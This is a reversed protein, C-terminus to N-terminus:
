TRSYYRKMRSVHVTDSYPPKRGGRAIRLQYNVESLKAEVEYPGYWRHLLKTTRGKKRIPTWVMVLDGKEYEVYRHSQDYRRKQRTQAGRIIKRVDERCRQVRELLRGAEPDVTANQCLSVDIPLRAERGYMLFFPTHRTTEQISTNYSFCTLHVYLDWDRQNTSVYNSLMQALTGNFHETLGNCMPHYATTYSTRIGLGKLLESVLTSTFNRGRDSLIRRPCGFKSIIRNILFRATTGATATRTAEAEAWKTAYDVAVIIYINGKATRTFPGLFDIGITDFPEGVPIPQLLGAGARKPTKRSQCDVCSKVYKEVEKLMKPWYYRSKIKFFTKTFGLHGGSLPSDHCETMVEHRIGTPVVLLKEHGLHAVNKKYLIGNEIVFSRALRREASTAEDPKKVAEIISRCQPDGEQLKGIDEMELALIPIENIDLEDQLGGQDTYNRSLCDPVVHLKGQKHRITYDFEMLKLAWRGLRGSIDKNRELWCLAHHDVVITFKRGWLYQRFHQTGFVAAICEKETTCYKKEADSLRRSAYAVPLVLDDEKQMIAAGVGFDSADTHLEIPLTPDFHRLIPASTLLEKLERFAEEQDPGWHFRENKKTLKLLPGAIKSFDPIFSRYYNCMGLFSRLARLRRPTEFNRVARVKDPNPSIGQSDVTHGLIKVESYGFSCKSPNLTMSAARLRELVKRMRALMVDYEPAMVLVDDLYVLCSGWKLGALVQDMCRQFVAPSTKLGFPTCEWEWLGDATIFATKHKDEEKIPIQWYGSNMDLTCFWKCGILYTLIDGILPLPYAIDKMKQNLRRYDVCFRWENNKKRVLVVPSAYASSSERIVGKNLMDDVQERIIERERHSVRYPPQHVPTDDVLPIALECVNTRGIQTKNWAFRDGFERLLEILMKRKEAPLQPNIDIEKEEFVGEQEKIMGEGQKRSDVKIECVEFVEALIEGEKLVRKDDALNLVLVESPPERSALACPIMVSKEKFVAMTPEMIGVDPLPGEYKVRLLRQSRPPLEATMDCLVRTHDEPEDEIQIQNLWSPDPPPRLYKASREESSFAATIKRGNRLHFHVSRNAFDVRTGFKWHFDNGVICCEGLGKAVFMPFVIVCHSIELVINTRGLIQVPEDTATKVNVGQVPSINGKVHAVLSEDICSVCAGTDIIIPMRRQNVKGKIELVGITKVTSTIPQATTHPMHQKSPQNGRRYGRTYRKWTDHWEQYEHDQCLFALRQNDRNRNTQPSVKRDLDHAGRSM